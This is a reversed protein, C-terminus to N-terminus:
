LDPKSIVRPRHDIEIPLAEPHLWQRSGALNGNADLFYDNEFKLRRHLSECRETIKAVGAEFGNREFVCRLRERRPEQDIWYELIRTVPERRELLAQISSRYPSDTEPLFAEYEQGLGRIRALFGNHLSMELGGPGLYDVLLDRQSVISMPTRGGGYSIVIYPQGPPVVIPEADQFSSVIFKGLVRTVRESSGDSSCASFGCVALFMLIVIRTQFIM